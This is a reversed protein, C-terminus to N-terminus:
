NHLKVNSESVLNVNPLGTEMKNLLSFLEWSTLFQTARQVAIKITIKISFFTRMICPYFVKRTSFRQTFLNRLDKCFEVNHIQYFKFRVKLFLTNWSTTIQLTQKGQYSKVIRLIREPLKTCYWSLVRVFHEEIAAM